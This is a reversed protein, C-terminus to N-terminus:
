RGSDEVVTDVFNARNTSEVSDSSRTVTFDKLTGRLRVSQGKRLKLLRLAARDLSTEDRSGVNAKVAFRMKIFALTRNDASQRGLDVDILVAPEGIVSGPIAAVSGYIRLGLAASADALEVTVVGSFVKGVLAQKELPTAAPDRLIEAVSALDGVMSPQQGSPRGPSVLILLAVVSCRLIGLKM